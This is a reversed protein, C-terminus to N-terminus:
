AFPNDDESDGASVPESPIESAWAPPNSAPYYVGRYLKPPRAGRVAPKGEGYCEMEVFDGIGIKRVGAAACAERFADMLSHPSKKSRGSIFLKRVGDDTGQRKAETVGTWDTFSTQLTLTPEMAPRSDPGKETSVKGENWYLAKGQKYQGDEIVLERRHSEGKATIRGRIKSKVDFGFSPVSSGFILDDASM